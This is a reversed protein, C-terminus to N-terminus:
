TATKRRERDVMYTGSITLLLFFLNFFFHVRWSFLGIVGGCSCPIRGYFNLIVLGVYGTFLVMLMLSVYLGALRTRPSFLLSAAIIEVVPLTYVLFFSLQSPIMQAAMQVKFHSFNLLKSAATYVWLLILLFTIIKIFITGPKKM